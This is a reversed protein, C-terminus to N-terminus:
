PHTLEGVKKRDGLKTYLAIARDLFNARKRTDGTLRALADNLAAEAEIDPFAGARDLAKQYATRASDYLEISSYADGLLRDVAVGADSAQSISELLAIAEAYLEHSLFLNARLYAAELASLGLGKIRGDAQRIPFQEAETLMRLESARPACEDSVHGGGSITVTVPSGPPIPLADQPYPLSGELADDALHLERRWHMGGAQLAITYDRTESIATWRVEPQPDLLRGARPSILIPCGGPTGSRM